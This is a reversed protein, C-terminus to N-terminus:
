LFFCGFCPRCAAPPHPWAAGSVPVPRWDIPDVARLGDHETFLDAVGSVNKRVHLLDEVEEVHQATLFRTDDM